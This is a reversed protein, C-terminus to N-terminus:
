TARIEQPVLGDRWLVEIVPQPEAINKLKYEGHAHLLFPSPSGLASVVGGTTMIRGGDALDMVRAALNLAAGLFPRGGKDLVVEGAAIGVRVLLEACSSESRCYEELTRQMEVAAGLANDASDFAAVLGDGGTSKGHGGHRDIVPLLMDRHRQVIKASELSGIDETMASFSKMDTIMVVAETRHRTALEDEASAIVRLLDDVDADEARTGHAPAAQVVAPRQLPFVFEYLAAVALAALLSVVAAAPIGATGIGLTLRLAATGAALVGVAATVGALSRLRADVGRMSGSVFAALAWIIPQVVLAGVHAADRFVALLQGADAADIAARLWAFSLSGAPISALDILGPATGGTTVSGIATHGLLLGAAEIAACMAAATLAGRGRGLLYGALAALAWEAHVPVVLVLLVVLLFGVARGEALYQTLLLGAIMVAIGAVIDAAVLPISGGIVIALAAVSPSALALLGVAAALLVTVWAAYFGTLRFIGFAALAFLTAYVYPLARGNRRNTATSM